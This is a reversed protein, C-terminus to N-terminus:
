AGTTGSAISNGRKGQNEGRRSSKGGNTDNINDRVGSGGTGGLRSSGKGGSGGTPTDNAAGPKSSALVPAVEVRRKMDEMLDDIAEKVEQPIDVLDEFMGRRQWEKWFRKRSIEGKTRAELLGLMDDRSRPSLTFDSYIDVTLDTVPKKIWEAASTFAQHIVESLSSVWIHLFSRSKQEDIARGTSSEGGMSMQLAELGAGEM